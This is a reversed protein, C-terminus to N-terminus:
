ILGILMLFRLVLEEPLRPNWRAPYFAKKFCKKFKSDTLIFLELVKQDKESLRDLFHEYFESANKTYFKDGTFLKKILPIKKFMNTPSTNQTHIRHAADVQHSFHWKGFGAAIMAIFWDHYLINESHCCVLCERMSRNITMAFGYFINSTISKQFDYSYHIEYRGTPADTEDIYEIGSHYMLPKESDRNEDSEMWGIAHEIKKEYWIDDQDSFTWYDGEPTAKLLQFFSACFGVNKEKFIVMRDPDSLKNKYEELISVTQDTSGDDRVYLTFSSYTQAFISDLQKVLFKEGNYTSM